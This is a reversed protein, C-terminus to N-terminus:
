KILSLRLSKLEAQGTALPVITMRAIYIGSPMNQGEASKGQWLTEYTGRDLTAQPKQM